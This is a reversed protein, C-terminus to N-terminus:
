EREGAAQAQASSGTVHIELLKKDLSTPAHASEIREVTAIEM